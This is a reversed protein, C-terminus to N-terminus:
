VVILEFLVFPNFAGHRGSRERSSDRYAPRSPVPYRCRGDRDSRYDNVITLNGRGDIITWGGATRNAFSFTIDGSDHFTTIIRSNGSGSINVWEAQAMGPLGPLIILFFIIKKM